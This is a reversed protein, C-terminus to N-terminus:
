WLNERGRASWHRSRLWFGLQCRPLEWFKRRSGYPGRLWPWVGALSPRQPPQRGLLGLRVSPASSLGPEEGKHGPGGWIARPSGRGHGRGGSVERRM